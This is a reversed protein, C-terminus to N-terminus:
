NKFILCKAHYFAVENLDKGLSRGGRKTGLNTWQLM